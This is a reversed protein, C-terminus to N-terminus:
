GEHGAGPYPKALPVVQRRMRRDLPYLYKHKGKAYVYEANPDVYERLWGLNFSGYKDVITKNHTLKGFLVAQMPVGEKVDGVYVWNTAKYITGVHDQDMDAYSVLLRLLPRDRHLQRVAMMVAESTHGHGQKGNLAVRVLEMVEGQVLGYPRGIQPCAGTGFCVTGCFEGSDTFVSYGASVQPVRRAYHYRLCSHRVEETTARRIRM